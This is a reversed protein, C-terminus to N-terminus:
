SNLKYALDTDILCDHQGEKMWGQPRWYLLKRGPTTKQLDKQLQGDLQVIRTWPRQSPSLQSFIQSFHDPEAGPSFLIVEMNGLGFARRIPKLAFTIKRARSADQETTGHSTSDEDEPYVVERPIEPHLDLQAFVCHTTAIFPGVIGHERYLDAVTTDLHIFTM